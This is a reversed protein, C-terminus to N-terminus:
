GEKSLEVRYRKGHWGDEVFYDAVLILDKM